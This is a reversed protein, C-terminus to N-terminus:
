IYPIVIRALIDNVFTVLWALGNYDAHTDTNIGLIAMINRILYAGVKLPYLLINIVMILYDLIVCLNNTIVEFFQTIDEIETQWQRAPMDFRLVSLDTTSLQLNQIYAWYNFKYIYFNTYFRNIQVKELYIITENGFATNLAIALIGIVITFTVIKIITKKM